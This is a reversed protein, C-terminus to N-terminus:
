LIIKKLQGCNNNLILEQFINKGTFFNFDVRLCRVM